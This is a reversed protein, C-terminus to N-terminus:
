MNTYTTSSLVDINMDDDFVAILINVTFTLLNFRLLTFSIQLIKWSDSSGRSRCIGDVECTKIM